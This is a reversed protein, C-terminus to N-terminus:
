HNATVTSAALASLRVANEMLKLGHNGEATLLSEPHFQVAEIPLERHRVGMIVGDETEATIELCSPLRERRAFLSHYRGVTFVEPLGEFVGKGDHRVVSPKGHMPYDLVGLEGGFAEVIGQLGLCVGFVPVGMHVATKVLDPVRFDSPRGPGPSILILSPAVQAILEHPFGARYTVVTAGTQRAYNALTHIFCDDNDVLLLKAAAASSGPTFAPAFAAVPADPQMARFFGTAKLRTEREELEPISDYLLTAGVPYRAIGDRLYTTRILIGTNIDGNLSIMGVAGGYWGRADKELVEIAQAAAKKPAGIMTVSWMHSLFADLADYGQELTGQVHDVTHFVGAYSEILRRGIVRVSGPECVRSKDNRDVDTCMTLESEEKASKLLERINDADRMPDGTRQATGSIPCTEVRRGEVRVFMEPSAGVLQEEGFQLLFEYPSPSARQVREFLASAKGSYTTHFTQRLVVEYFDGRGMGERVKEVNAMYEEPKHDSEIPAPERKPPAAVAAGDRKLGRTTLEGRTFDYQYREIQEKKRDMFWIDDCLYLHLDKHDDRPHKKEIPEFQFLLDYGFAGVLGLRSNEEGRFEEILARLISFVSPQKSRQEEAFLQPLPKLRGHLAGDVMSFEEWHPHDELVAQLMQTIRRGRENLPRFEIRRDWAVIELPPCISGFDWRSYRGPYEYGSSFYIGRRRDLERLLHRLGKAYNVKSLTRSVEIGHPTTHSYERM